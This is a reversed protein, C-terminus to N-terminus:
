LKRSCTEVRKFRSFYKCTQTIRMADAFAAMFIEHIESANKALKSWFKVCIEQEQLAGM